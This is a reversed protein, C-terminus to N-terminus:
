NSKDLLIKSFEGEKVVEIRESNPLILNRNHSIIYVSDIIGTKVMSTLLNIIDEKGSSDMANDLLEDIALINCSISNKSKALKIFSLLISLDIRKKEGESLSYYGLGRKSYGTLELEFQENFRIGYNRGFDKLYGNISNNLFPLDNKIVQAKIGEDSLLEKIYEYYRIENETSEKSEIISSFKDEYEKLKSEDILGDFAEMTQNKIYLMKEKLSKIDSELRLLTSKIKDQKDRYDEYLSLANKYEEEKVKKLDYIEQQLNEQEKKYGMWTKIEEIFFDCNLQYVNSQGDLNIMKIKIADIRINIKKSEDKKHKDTLTSNCVPCDTTENIFVLAKEEKELETKCDVWEKDEIFRKERVNENRCNTFEEIIRQIRQIKAQYGFVQRDYDSSNFDPIKLDFPKLEKGSLEKEAELGKMEQVLTKLQKIKNSEFEKRILNAKELKDRNDKVLGNYLDYDKELIKLKDKNEKLLSKSKELMQSYIQIGLLNEVVNRTEEPTLDMFSKSNNLSLICINKFTNQDFGLLEEIQTQVLAKSSREDQAKGDKLLRLYSPSLGREIQYPIGNVTMRLTVECGKKNINNVVQELKIGKRIIKGFLGFHLADVILTSKGTGNEGVILSFPYRGFELTTEANGFSLLNKISVSEFKIRV